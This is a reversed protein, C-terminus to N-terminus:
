EQAVQEAQDEEQFVMVMLEVAVAVVVQTPQEQAEQLDVLMDEQEVVVQHQHLLMVQHHLNLEEQEGVQM